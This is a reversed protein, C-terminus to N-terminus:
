YNNAEEKSLGKYRLFLEWLSKRFIIRPFFETKFWNFFNYNVAPKLKPAFFVDCNVTLSKLQNEMWDEKTNGMHYTFNDETSLRWLGLNIAPEDLFLQESDGGLSFKTYTSNIRNFCINKYTAVFHGAGIVAKVGKNFVTLNYEFHVKKFLNVNGISHAFATLAEKNKINTFQIKKSFLAEFLINSTYYRLMKPNPTTSVVGTKPFAEFVEYTAKQWHDLFLVDADSITILDFQQGAIGKLIANLKGIATTHVIEHIQGQQHLMNLYVVVEVCCGNNVVTFYTKSHSTKFLSNLCYKLITFSDKFYGVQDPIHVPIIVQHFYDSKTITQDKNPNFGIRM